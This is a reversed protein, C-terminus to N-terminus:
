PWWRGVAQAARVLEAPGDDGGLALVVPALAGLDSLLARRSRLALPQLTEEWLPRLVDPPLAALDDAVPALAGARASENDIARAAELAATLAQHRGAGDLRRALDLLAAARGATAAVARAAAFAEAPRRLLALRRALEALAWDRARENAIARVADLAAGLANERDARAAGEALDILAEGRRIEDAIARAAKLAVAPRGLEGLRRVLAALATGRVASDIIAHAAKLASRLLRGKLRPALAALAGARRGENRVGRATELAEALTQERQPEALREACEALAAARLGESEVARAAQLAADLRGSKGFRGALETLAQDRVQPDLIAYAAELAVAPYALEGLPATLALLAWDRVAKDPMARLAALAAAAAQEQPPGTLRGAVALLAEARRRGDKIAAAAELAGEPQGAKALQGVLEGIVRDREDDERIACAARMAPAQQGEEGFRWVMRALVLNRERRERIKDAAEVAHQLLPETLREALRILAVARMEEDAIDQTLELAIKLNGTEVLRGVLGALPENRRWAIKITRIAELTAQLLPDGLEAETAAPTGENPSARASGPTAQLPLLLKLNGYVIEMLAQDRVEDDRIGRAVEVAAAPQGLKGLRAALAGLGRDRAGGEPLARVRGLVAALAPGELWPVLVVLGRTREGEDDIAKLAELAAVRQGLQALRRALALVAGARLGPSVLDCATELAAQLLSGDLREVLEALVEACFNDSVARARELVITLLPGDLGSALRQLAETRADVEEIGRAIELAAVPQGLWALLGVLRANPRDPAFLAQLAQAAALAASLQGREALQEALSLLVGYRALQNDIAQVAELAAESESREWMRGALEELTRYRVADGRIARAIELAAGPQGREGLQWVLQKLALDREESGVDPADAVAPRVAGQNQPAPQPALEAPAGEALLEARQDLAIAARAAELALDTQGSNLLLVAMQALIIDRTVGAAIGFAVSLAAPLHRDELNDLARQLGGARVAERQIAGLADLATGQQRLRALRGALNVLAQDRAETDGIARAAELAAQLYPGELRPALAALVKARWEAEGLTRVAELIACLLPGEVHTALAALAHARPGGERLSAVVKWARDLLTEGLRPVLAALVQAKRAEDPIVRAVRVAAAYRGGEALRRALTSLAEARAWRDGLTRLAALAETLVQKRRVRDLQGAVAGLAEACREPDKLTRLRELAEDLAPEQLRNIIGALAAARAEGDSLACAAEVAEAPRRARALRLALAALAGDGARKLSRAVERASGLLPGPLNPVLAVLALAQDQAGRIVRVAALAEAFLRVQQPGALHPALATLAAARARGEGIRSVEQVASGLLPGELRGALAVLVEASRGQDTITRVVALAEGPRGLEGLRAALAALARDQAYRDALARAAELATLLPAGELRPALSALEEGWAYPDDLTRAAALAAALAAERPAGELRGALAALARCRAEPQGIAHASDVADALQPGELQGALAALAEGRAWDDAVGRAADLADALAQARPPGELRGALRALAEARGAGDRIGAAAALAEATRGGEALRAALAGLALDRDADDDIEQATALAQAPFGPAAARGVLDALAEARARADGVAAAAELAEDAHGREALRVALAALARDRGGEDEPAPASLIEGLARRRDGDPLDPALAALGHFRQEPDPTHRAYALAQAASWAGGRLLAALLAPPVSGAMSNLSALLLAYRAELGVAGAARALRWARAVDERYGPARGAEECVEYWANRGEPTEEALLAHLGAADGAQELHWTLRARIYGDEPVAAWAGARAKRRYRALLAAQAAAFTQGLGPLDGPRAPSAPSELLERATRHVLDHLRYAPPGDAGRPGALALAKDRLIRLTADASPEDTDWFTAAAAAPLVADEPLVGLRLFRERPEPPLRRLSLLLCAKLSLRKRIGEDTVAAAGPRDLRAIEEGLDQVLRDWSSGGAVQAAALELALPLYGVAKALRGAARREEAPLGRGLRRALLELAEPPTMVGLDYLRARCADAIVAERTTILARCRPGGALFPEVHEAAWADDVVLLVARDRLLTRLRAATSQLNSPQHNVDGLEKVWGGLLSLLNDPELGLTVWLVGDPFRELVDPEHCLAAAATSKGVGGLGHVASVVLAGADAEPSFLLKKLDGLVGPRPVLYPPTPPAQFPVTASGTAGPGAGTLVAQGSALLREDDGRERELVGLLRRGYGRQDIWRLFEFAVARHGQATNVLDNLDEDFDFQALERLDQLDIARVFEALFQRQQQPTPV